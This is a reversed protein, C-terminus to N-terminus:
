FGGIMPVNPEQIIDFFELYQFLEDVLSVVFVQLYHAVSNSDHLSTAKTALNM